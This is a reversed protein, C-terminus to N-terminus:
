SWSDFNQEIVHDFIWYDKEPFQKQIEDWSFTGMDFVGVVNDWGLDRGCVVYVYKKV